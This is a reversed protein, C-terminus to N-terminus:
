QDYGHIVLTWNQENTHNEIEEEIREVYDMSALPMQIVLGNTERDNKPIWEGGGNHRKTDNDSTSTSNDYGDTYPFLIIRYLTMACCWWKPSPIPDSSQSVKKINSLFMIIREGALMSHIHPIVLKSVGGSTNPLNPPNDQMKSTMNNSLLSSQMNTNQNMQNNGESLTQKSPTFSSSSTARRVNYSAPMSNNKGLSSSSSTNSIGSFQHKNQNWLSSISSTVSSMSPVSAQFSKITDVAANSTNGLSPKNKIVNNKPSPAPASSFNALPHSFVSTRDSLSAESAISTNLDKSPVETSEEPVEQMLSSNQTQSEQKNSEEITEQSAEFPELLTKSNDKMDDQDDSDIAFDGQDSDENNIGDNLLNELASDIDSMDTPGLVVSLPDKDVSSASLSPM